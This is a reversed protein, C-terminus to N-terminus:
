RLIGDETASVDRASTELRSPGLISPSRSQFRSMAIASMPLATLRASIEPRDGRIIHSAVNTDLLYGSM